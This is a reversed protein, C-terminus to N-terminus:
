TIFNALLASHIHLIELHLKLGNSLFPFVDRTMKTAGQM